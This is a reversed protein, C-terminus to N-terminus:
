GSVIGFSVLCAGFKCYLCLEIPIKSSTTLMGTELTNLLWNTYKQIDMPFHQYMSRYSDACLVIASCQHPNWMDATCSLIRCAATNELPGKQVWNSMLDSVVVELSRPVLRCLFVHALCKKGASCYWVNMKLPLCGWEICSLHSSTVAVRPPPDM